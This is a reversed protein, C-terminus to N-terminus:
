QPRQREGFGAPEIERPVEVQAAVEVHHARLAPEGIVRGVHAHLGEVQAPAIPRLADAARLDGGVEEAHEADGRLEAAIERRVGVPGARVCVAM